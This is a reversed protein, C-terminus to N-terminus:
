STESPLDSGQPPSSPPSALARQVSLGVPWLDVTVQQVQLPTPTQRSPAGVDALGEDGGGGEKRDDTAM